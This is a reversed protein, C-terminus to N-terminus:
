EHLAFYDIWNILLNVFNSFLNLDCLIHGCKFTSSRIIFLHKYFPTHIYSKHDTKQIFYNHLHNNENLAVIGAFYSGDNRFIWTLITIIKYHNNWYISTYYFYTIYFRSCHHISIQISSTTGHKFSKSVSFNLCVTTKLISLRLCKFCNWSFLLLHCILQFSIRSSTYTNANANFSPLSIWPMIPILFSTTEFAISICQAHLTILLSYSVPYVTQFTCEKRYKVAGRDTLFTRHKGSLYHM